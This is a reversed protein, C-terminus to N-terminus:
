KKTRKKGIVTAAGAAPSLISERGDQWRVRVLPPDDRLVEEIVGERSTQSVKEAEVVIRDGAQVTM